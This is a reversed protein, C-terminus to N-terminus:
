LLGACIKELFPTFNGFIQCPCVSHSGRNPFLAEHFAAVPSIQPCSLIITFHTSLFINNPDLSYQVTEADQMIEPKQALSAPCEPDVTIVNENLKRVAPFYSLPKIETYKGLRKSSM